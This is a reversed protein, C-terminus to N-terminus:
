WQDYAGYDILVIHDKKWGYNLYHLDYMNHNSCWDSEEVTMYEWADQSTRGIGRILPMIYFTMGDYQFPTIKAFLHAFGDAEAEAYLAMEKECGGFTKISEPSWDIKVVYDSTILAVRTMGHSLRVSTHHDHNYACVAWDFDQITEAGQLYAAIRQIFKQARVEYTNRM